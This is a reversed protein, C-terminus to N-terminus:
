KGSYWLWVAHVLWAIGTIWLLVVMTAAYYNPPLRINELSAQQQADTWVEAPIMRIALWLGLPVLIIDDLLGLIPIFDPILDIPSLAIALVLASLIKSIIPVRADSSAIYLTIIERKLKRATEVVWTQTKRIWTESEERERTPSDTQLLSASADTASM